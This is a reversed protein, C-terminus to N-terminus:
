QRHGGPSRKRGCVGNELARPAQRILILILAMGVGNFFALNAARLPICLIPALVLLYLSFEGDWLSEEKNGSLPALLFGRITTFGKHRPGLVVKNWRVYFIMKLSYLM